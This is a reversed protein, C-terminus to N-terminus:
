RSVISGQFLCFKLMGIGDRITRMKSVGAVRRKYRVPLERCRLQLRAAHFLLDLDGWSREKFVLDKFDKRWMVKVGCLADTCPVSIVSQVWRALFINGLYNLPRMANREMSSQFRTGWLFDVEGLQMPEIFHPLDEPSISMDADFIAIINGTAKEIGRGVATGKGCNRDYAVLQLNPYKGLLSAVITRTNDISGDDVVIIEEFIGLDASRRICEEINGNENYCPIILSASPM